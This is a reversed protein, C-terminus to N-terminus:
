PKASHVVFSVQETDIATVSVSVELQVQYHNRIRPLFLFLFKEKRQIQEAKLVLVDQPEIRLLIKNSDAMVTRQVKSLADAFAKAKSDGMGSVTVKSQFHEKM